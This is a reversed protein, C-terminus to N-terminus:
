KAVVPPKVCFAKARECKDALTCINDMLSKCKDPETPSRTNCKMGTYLIYWTNAQEGCSLIRQALLVRGPQIEAHARDAIAPFLLILGLLVAARM